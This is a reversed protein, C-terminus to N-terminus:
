NAKRRWIELQGEMWLLHSSEYSPATLHSIIRWMAMQPPTRLEPDEKFEDLYESWESSMQKDKPM